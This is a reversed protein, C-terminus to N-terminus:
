WEITEVFNTNNYKKDEYVRERLLRMNPDNKKLGGWSWIMNSLLNDRKLM